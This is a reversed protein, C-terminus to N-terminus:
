YNYKSTIERRTKRHYLKYIFSGITSREKDTICYKKYVSEYSIGSAFQKCIEEAFEDSYVANYRNEGHEYQGNMSAYYKNQNNDCWQLHKYYNDDKNGFIHDIDNYIDPFPNILFMEGVIRHISYNKYEGYVTRLGIRSYGMHNKFPKLFRNVLKSFVKGDPSILYLSPQIDLINDIPYLTNDDPIFKYMVIPNITHNEM